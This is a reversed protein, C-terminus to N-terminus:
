KKRIFVDGSTARLQMEVGGGNIKCEIKNGLFEELYSNNEDEFDFNFDTYTQSNSLNTIILNAKTDSPLSLDIEGNMTTFLVPYKQNLQSFDAIINGSSLYVVAPGTINELAINANTANIEIEGELNKFKLNRRKTEDSYIQVGPGVYYYENDYDSDYDRDKDKDRDKDRDKINTAAIIRKQKAKNKATKQVEHVKEAIKKELDKPSIEELQELMEANEFSLQNMQEQLEIAQIYTSSGFSFDSFEMDFLNSKPIILDLNKPIKIKYKAKIAEKVVPSIKLEGNKIILYLGLGTNDQGRGFVPRLGDERAKPAKYDESTIIIDKGSYGEVTFNTLKSINIKEVDNINKKFEQSYSFSLNIIFILAILIIKKITKM